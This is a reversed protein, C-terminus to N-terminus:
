KWYDLKQSLLRELIISLFYKLHPLPLVSFYLPLSDDIPALYLTVSISIKFYVNQFWSLFHIKHRLSSDIFALILLCFQYPLHTRCSHQSWLHKAHTTRSSCIFSFGGWKELAHSYTKKKKMKIITGSMIRM